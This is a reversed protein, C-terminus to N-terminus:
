EALIKCAEQLGSIQKTATEIRERLLWYNREAADTLRPGTGNVLGTDQTSGPLKPCSAGVSLWGTGNTRAAQMRKLDDQAKRLEKTQKEDIAAMKDAKAVSKKRAEIAQALASQSAELRIDAIRGDKRWGQVTWGALLALIVAAAIFYKNM